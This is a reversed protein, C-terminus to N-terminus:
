LTETQTKKFPKRFYGHSYHNGYLIYVKESKDKFFEDCALKVGPNPNFGRLTKEPDHYDMLLCVSGPTMRPYIDKLCHLMINKHELSNGGFGCDIHIFSLKKPLQMPITEEFFGEHIVPLRLNASKFNEILKNKIQKLKIPKLNFKDYLHLQKQPNYNEIIAQMEAACQGTHCGLEILDGEVEYILVQSVLHFMNIRQEVTIMESVGDPRKRFEINIGLKRLVKNLYFNAKSLYKQTSTTHPNYFTYDM